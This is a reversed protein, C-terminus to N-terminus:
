RCKEKKNRNLFVNYDYIFNIFTFNECLYYYSFKIFMIIDICVQVRQLALQRQYQLYEHKKKRMAQLKVAMQMQRQREAAEAQAALRAAHEARLTDLAARSDRM